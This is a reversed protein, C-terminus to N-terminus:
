SEEQLDLNPLYSRPHFLSLHRLTEIFHDHLKQNMISSYSKNCLQREIAEDLQVHSTIYEGALNMEDFLTAIKPQSAGVCPRNYLASFIAGHYRMSVVVEANTIYTQLENVHSLLFVKSGFYEKLVKDLKPEIAVITNADPAKSIINSIRELLMIDENCNPYKLIWLTRTKSSLCDSESIFGDNCFHHNDGACLIPDRLLFADSRYKQLALVSTHDRGSVVWARNLLEKHYEVSANTAGVGLMFIPLYLRRIWELNMLPDHPHALLGGGGIVLMDYSNVKDADLIIRPPLKEGNPFYYDSGNLLSCADFCDHEIGWASALLDRVAVAQYADGLNGNGFAGFLLIRPKCELISVGREMGIEFLKGGIGNKRILCESLELASPERGFVKFFQGWAFDANYAVDSIQNSVAFNDRLRNGYEDSELIENLISDLTSGAYIKKGYHTLASADAERHLVARYIQQVLEEAHNRIQHHWHEQSNIIIQILKFLGQEKSPLKTYTELAEHEPIRQLLSKFVEEVFEVSCDNICDNPTNIASYKLYTSESDLLIRKIENSVYLVRETHRDKSTTKHDYRLAQRIIKSGNGNFLSKDALYMVEQLNTINKLINHLSTQDNLIDDWNIAREYDDLTYRTYFEKWARLIDKAKHHSLNVFFVGANIDWYNDTVGSHTFIFAYSEKDLLYTQFDFSFDNIYADADLYLVWGSHGEDILENLRYIRNHTAHHPHMGKKLGYFIEYKINSGVRDYRRLYELVTLSTEQLIPVYNENDCTQLILLTGNYEKKVCSNEEKKVYSRLFKNSFEASSVLETLINDLSEGQKIRESYGSSGEDPERGLVGRYYIDIIQEPHGYLNKEWAEQSTSMDSLFKTLIKNKQLAATYAKLGEIDAERNLLGQYMEQIINKAFFGVFARFFINKM